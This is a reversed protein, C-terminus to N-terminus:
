ACHFGCDPRFISDKSLHLNGWVVFRDDTENFRQLHFETKIIIIRNFATILCAAKPICQVMLKCSGPDFTDYKRRSSHERLLPLPDFRILSVSMQNRLAKTIASIM